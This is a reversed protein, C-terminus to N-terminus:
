MNNIAFLSVFMSSVKKQKDLTLGSDDDYRAGLKM